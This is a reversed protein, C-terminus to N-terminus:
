QGQRNFFRAFRQFDAPYSGASNRCYVGEWRNPSKQDRRWIGDEGAPPLVSIVDLRFLAFVRFGRRLVISQRKSVRKENVAPDQVYPSVRNDPLMFAPVMMILAPVMMGWDKRTSVSGYERPQSIILFESPLETSRSTRRASQFKKKRAALM